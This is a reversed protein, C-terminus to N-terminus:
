ISKFICEHMQKAVYDWTYEKSVMNLAEQTVQKVENQHSMIYIVQEAIENPSDPSVAFGTSAVEPNRRRDFLFDSIGGEQTAIVPLGAAMAEVFSNGMGESRSPRIFIDCAKLLKPMSSHEIHGRLHVRESLDLEQILKQLKEEDPGTGFIVFHVNNPLKTMARVVDDVGNKQVLRSTTVLFLDGEQKGLENRAQQLQGEPYRTTFHEVDVANPIVFSEKSFGMNRGWRELFTSIAQLKDALSFGDKFLKGFIRMKREIYEPPDGEQLTLIYTINPFKKKFLGAPVASAHAMMAWIADYNHKKHLKKAYLYATLQFLLKNLHLPFSKM